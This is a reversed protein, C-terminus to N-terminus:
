MTEGAMSSGADDSDSAMEEVMEHDMGPKPFTMDLMVEVEDKILDDAMGDYNIEWDRRNITFESTAHISDDGMHVTAPFAVSKTVGRMTLNGAIQYTGDGNDVISTSQFTATPHEEVLFFDGTKLHGTLRENDSYLSNMDIEFELSEPEGDAFTLSGDFDNFGGDHKGTVKRGVWSIASAEADVEVTEGAVPDTEDIEVAEGVTADPSAPEDVCAVAGFLALIMILNFYNLRKM